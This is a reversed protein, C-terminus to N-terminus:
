LFAFFQATNVDGPEETGFTFSQLYGDTTANDQWWLVFMHDTIKELWPALGGSVNWVDTAIDSVAWTTTDVALVDIHLTPTADRYARVFYQVGSDEYMSIVVNPKEGSVTVAAAPLTAPSGVAAVDYTSADVTLVQGYGTAATTNTWTVLYHTTDLRNVSVYRGDVTEFELFDVQTCAFTSPNVNIVRAFGDAGNGEHVLLVHNADIAEIHPSRADATDFEFAAVPMTVTTGSVTLATIYGDNGTGRWAAVFIDDRLHFLAQSLMTDIEFEIATGGTVEWTSPNISLVRAFGDSDTSRYVVLAQNATAGVCVVPMTESAGSSEITYPTGINTVVGDEDVEQVIALTTTSAEWVLLWHTDDLKAAKPATGNVTEWEFPFGIQVVETM